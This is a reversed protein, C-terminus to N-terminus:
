NRSRKSAKPERNTALRWEIPKVGKPAGIEQAIVCTVPFTGGQGDPLEVRCAFLKQRALRSAQAGRAPLRFEIEGLAEGSRVKAWM